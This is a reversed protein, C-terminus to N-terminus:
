FVINSPGLNTSLCVHFITVYKIGEGLEVSVKM